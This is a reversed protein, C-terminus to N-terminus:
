DFLPGAVGATYLKMWLTPIDTAPFANKLDVFAVFLTKGDARARDIAARLVFSNNHTRLGARFGNQSDPFFKRAEAWSRIRKEILLTLVKLLCSELGVLLNFLDALVENSLTLITKYSVRDAGRASDAAKKRLAVRVVALEAPSFPSTFFQEPTRDVTLSPIARAMAEYYLRLHEDFHPPPVAPPNLRAEFVFALQEADVLTPRDKAATCERVVNWFERGGKLM